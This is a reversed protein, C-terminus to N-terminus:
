YVLVGNEYSQARQKRICRVTYRASGDTTCTFLTLDWDDSDKTMEEVQIPRLTQRDAVVFEYRQDDMDTFIIEDGLSLWKLPTFHTYYDHGAIVMNNKYLSGSYRCPSINLGSYDWSSMVPLSLGQSPVELVGIYDRGNITKVPMERDPFLEDMIEADVGSDDADSDGDKGEQGPDAESDREAELQELIEAAAKGARRADLINYGTLGAAFLLLVMGITIFVKSKKM